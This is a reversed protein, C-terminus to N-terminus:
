EPTGDAEVIGDPDPGPMWRPAWEFRYMQSAQPSMQATRPEWTDDHKDMDADFEFHTGLPSNFYWFWNSGFKHRGPGWFSQYGAKAFRTGAVMLETPGGMHFALHEIGQMYEPVQIFFLTHHDDTGGPRLFPGAPELVDTIVFGLRECYWRAARKQDPVFLVTHSLTRPKAPMGPYVGLENPGRQAPAGPANIREAPMDLARRKTVQFKLAFNFLDTTELSGDALRTIRRDSGLSAEIQDLVGADKVGYVQQRLMSATPLAPPLSADDRRRIIIGTGDLAEFLGGSADAGVPTLGFDTLYQACAAVDDVGFVVHEPGIINM